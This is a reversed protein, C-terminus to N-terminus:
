HSLLKSRRRRTIMSPLIERALQASVAEHNLYTIIMGADHYVAATEILLSETENLEELCNLHCASRLVDLSHDLSHFYLNPSLEKQLRNVNYNKAGLFDM